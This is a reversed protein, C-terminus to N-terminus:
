EDLLEDMENERVFQPLPKPKKPGMVFHAPDKEVM